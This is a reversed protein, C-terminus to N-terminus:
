EIEGEDPVRSAAEMRRLTALARTGQVTRHPDSVLV